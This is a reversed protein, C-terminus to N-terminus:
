SSIMPLPRSHMLLLSFCTFSFPQFQVLSFFWSLAFYVSCYSGIHQGTSKSTRKYKSTSRKTPRKVGNARRRMRNPPAAASAAWSSPRRGAAAARRISSIRRKVRRMPSTARNKSRSRNRGAAEVRQSIFRHPSSLCFVHISISSFCVTEATLGALCVSLCVPDVPWSLPSQSTMWLTM